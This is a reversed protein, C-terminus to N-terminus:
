QLLQVVMERRIVAPCTLIKSSRIDDKIALSPIDGLAIQIMAHHGALESTM